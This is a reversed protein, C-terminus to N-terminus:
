QAVADAKRECCDGLWRVEGIGGTFAPHRCVDPLHDGASLWEPSIGELVGAGDTGNVVPEGRGPIRLGVALDFPHIPGDLLDSNVAVVIVGVALQALM